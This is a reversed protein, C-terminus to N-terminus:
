SFLERDLSHLDKPNFYKKVWADTTGLTWGIQSAASGPPLAMPTATTPEPQRNSYNDLFNFHDILAIAEIAFVTAVDEDHIELLNDGNQEEGGLALNSSGCYVVPEPGNFGCVVFKHHIQHGAGIGHVQSFPPPLKTKVPRGTVLVGESKGVPYLTIGNRTDSIGYTFLETDTHLNKLATGVPNNKDAGLDMIAFLVSRRDAAPMEREHKIRKVIGDLVSKAMATGHPAFTISTSPVNNSTSSFPKSSLESELFKKRDVDSNWAEEFVSHYLTAIEEDDYILIHNSNVYLGTISFNTSGTLVKKPTSKDSVIIVKDHAYRGFTGRKVCGDSAATALAEFEDEPKPKSANHHLAASDVIIRLRGAKALSLLKTVFEPEDLDYAFVDVSLDPDDEVEAILSFLRDRATFGLWEYEQQYTFTGKGNAGAAQGTDFRLEHHLPAIRAKLGFHHVFAQSQVFGRTCSVSLKGKQFPGVDVAVTVSLNPDLPKLSKKDFYRPTVTYRYTGVAPDLGQHLAGPVHLWRFKHLPANITSCPLEDRDQAHDGPFEFQLDNLLFYSPGNPPTVQITFGALGQRAEDTVIDFALLTKFDGRYARVTTAGVRERILSM